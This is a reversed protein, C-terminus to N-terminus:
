GVDASNSRITTATFFLYEANLLIKPSSITHLHVLCKQSVYKSKIKQKEQKPSVQILMLVVIRGLDVRTHKEMLLQQFFVVIVHVDWNQVFISIELLQNLLVDLLFTLM